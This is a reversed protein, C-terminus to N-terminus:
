EFYGEVIKPSKNNLLYMRSIVSTMDPLNKRTIERDHSLIIVQNGIKPYLHKILKKVHESDMRGLPSDIILPLKSHSLNLLGFMLSYMLIGKEGESIWRVNVDIGDYGILKLSYNPMIKITKVMDDKNKLLSYIENIKLELDEISRSMQLTSRIKITSSIEDIIKIASKDRTTLILNKEETYVDKKLKEIEQNKILITMNKEKIKENITFIQNNVKILEEEFKELSQDSHRALKKENKQINLMVEERERLRNIFTFKNEENNLEIKINKIQQYTLDVIPESYYVTNLENNLLEADIVQLVKALTGKGINIENISKKIITAKESLHDSLLLRVSNDNEKKATTLAEDIIEACILRPCQSYVYQQVYDNLETYKTKCQGLEKKLKENNKEITGLARNFESDIEDKKELLKTKEISFISSEEINIEILNEIEKIRSELSKIKKEISPKMNLRSIRKKVELLDINLVELKSIDTLDRVANLLYDASYESAVISRIQEGDFFFYRSIHPPLIKKIYYEWYNRDILEVDKDDKTLSLKEEFINNQKKFERKVTLRIPPTEANVMIDMAIFMKEDNNGRTWMESICEQYKAETMPSGNMKSGYLCLRIAESITTKGSGNLGGILIVNKNESTSLNFENYGEYNKYNFIMLRNIILGGSERRPMM